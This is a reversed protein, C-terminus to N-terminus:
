LREGKGIGFFITLFEALAMRSASAMTRIPTLTAEVHCWAIDSRRPAPAARLVARRM